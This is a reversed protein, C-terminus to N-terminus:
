NPIRVAVVRIGTSHSDLSTSEILAEFNGLSGDARRAKDLITNMGKGRFLLNEAAETGAGDLGQVLLVHGTRNLNPIYAIVAYAKESLGKWNDTYTPAEGPAPNRNRIWFKGEGPKYDFEFNLSNQFIEIWPISYISGLFILNKDKLDEITLSRAARITFRDPLVEPLRALKSVIEMDIVSTYKRTKLDSVFDHEPQEVSSWSAYEALTFRRAKMDQLTVFSTDAPVILTDRAPVFLQEWLPHLTSVSEAVPKRRQAFFVLIATAVVATIVVAITVTTFISRRSREEASLDSFPIANENAVYHRDPEEDLVALSHPAFLPIYGGKPIAVRLTEAHGDTAYYEDLRKRLQRAYNRVINDERSDYGQERGFVHVGVEQESIRFAGDRLTRHCVYSLFASLLPAKAFHSSALIRSILQEEQTADTVEISATNM